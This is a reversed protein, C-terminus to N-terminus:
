LMKSQFGKFHLLISTLLHRSSLRQLEVAREGEKIIM